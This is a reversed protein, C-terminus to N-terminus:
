GITYTNYVWEAKCPLRVTVRVTVCPVYVCYWFASSRKPTVISRHSLDDMSREM